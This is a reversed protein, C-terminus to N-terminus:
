ENYLPYEVTAADIATPEIAATALTNINKLDDDFDFL